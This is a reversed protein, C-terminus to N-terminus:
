AWDPYQYQNFTYTGEPSIWFQIRGGSKMSFFRSVEGNLKLGLPLTRFRNDTESQGHEDSILVVHPKISDMMGQSFGSPRGHHPAVLVRWKAKNILALFRASNEAWLTKWGADEIDGPCVFLWGAYLYMVVVSTDNVSGGAVYNNYTAIAEVGGNYASNLASEEPKVKETYKLDLAKFAKQCELQGSQFKETEPLTKNLLLTRPEGLGSVLSPLDSIHDTDPHSIVLIDPRGLGYKKRVHATPSFEDTSRCDIWHDKGNPTRIWTSLGHGVDWLTFGLKGSPLPEGKTSGQIASSLATTNPM